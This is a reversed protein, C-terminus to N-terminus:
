VAIAGGVGSPRPGSGAVGCQRSGHWVGRERGGEGDVHVRGCAGKERRQKARRWRAMTAKFFFFGGAGGKSEEREQPVWRV